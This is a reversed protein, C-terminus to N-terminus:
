SNNYVNLYRRLLHYLILSDNETKIRIVSSSNYIFETIKTLFTTVGKMKNFEFTVDDITIGKDSISLNGKKVFKLKTTNKDRAIVQVKLFERINQYYSDFLIIQNKLLNDIRSGNLFGYEDIEFKHGCKTCIAQEGESKVSRYSKCEPCFWLIREIGSIKKKGKFKIKEKEQWKWENHKIFDLAESNNFIKVELVIKGRRGYNAWRPKSLYGGKIKVAVIPVKVMNLLKDTGKPVEQFTGDWTTSGEPFIGVINGENLNKIIRRITSVDPVGKQKPIFKMSKFIPGIIPRNFNGKAVVWSITRKLHSSIFLPDFIHTHNAILLFPPSPFKEGEFELNYYEKFFSSLIPRLYWLIHM